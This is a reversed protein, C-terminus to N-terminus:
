LGQWEVRCSVWRHLKTLVTTLWPICLHCATQNTYWFPISASTIWWACIHSTDSHWQIYTVPTTIQILPPRQLPDLESQINNFTFSFHVLPLPSFQTVTSNYFANDRDSIVNFVSTFSGAAHFCFMEFIVNDVIRTITTTIEVAGYRAISGAQWPISSAPCAKPHPPSAM